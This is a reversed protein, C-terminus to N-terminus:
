DVAHAEPTTGPTNGSTSLAADVTGCGATYARAINLVGGSAWATSQATYKLANTATDYWVQGETAPSPDSALNQVKFGKIATYTAM